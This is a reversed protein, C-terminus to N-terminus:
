IHSVVEGNDEWHVLMPPPRRAEPLTAEWVSMFELIKAEGNEGAIVNMGFARGNFDAYGLPVVGVAYGAAAALSSIRGDGPGLIVDLSNRSLEKALADRAVQRFNAKKAVHDPDPTRHIIDELQSQSPHETLRNDVHLLSLLFLFLSIFFSPPFSLSL